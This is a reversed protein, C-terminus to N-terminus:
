AVGVASRAREGAAVAIARADRQLGSRHFRRGPPRGESWVQAARPDWRVSGLLRVHCSAAIEEASYPAGPKIVVVAISEPARRARLVETLRAAARAAPLSSRTVVVLLDCADVLPLTPGPVYRGLDLVVDAGHLRRWAAALRGWDVGDAQELGGLGALVAPAHGAPRHTRRTLAQGLATTRLDVVLDALGHGAPWDGGGLGARVDGGFPDAEVMLAPGEWTSAVALATTTTGPAGTASCFGIM